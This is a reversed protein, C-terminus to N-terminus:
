AAPHALGGDGALPPDGHARLYKNLALLVATAAAALAARGLEGWNVPQQGLADAIIPLAAVLGACLLGETLRLLAREGPTLAAYAQARGWISQPKM